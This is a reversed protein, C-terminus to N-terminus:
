FCWLSLNQRVPKIHIKGAIYINIPKISLMASKIKKAPVNGSRSSRQTCPGGAGAHCGHPVDSLTNNLTM